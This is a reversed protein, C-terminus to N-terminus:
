EQLSIFCQSPEFGYEFTISVNKDKPVSFIIWGETKAGPLLDVSELHPKDKPYIIFLKPSYGVGDVYAKFNLASISATGKGSVYTVTIKTLLYEFGDKPEPNFPNARNANKIAINADEGRIFTLVAVEFTRGLSKFSCAENIGVTKGTTVTISTYPVTMTKTITYTVTKTAMQTMAKGEVTLTFTTTETVSTTQTSSIGASYGIIVGLILFVIIAAIWKGRGEPKQFSKIPPGPPPARRKITRILEPRFKLGCDMCEWVGKYGVVNNSGCRPCRVEYISSNERGTPLEREERYAFVISGAKREERFAQIGGIILLVFPLIGFTGGGIITLIGGIILIVGGMKKGIIGGTIGLIGGLTAIAAQTYLRGVSEVVEKSLFSSTAEILGTFILVAFGLLIGFIGGIVGLIFSARV